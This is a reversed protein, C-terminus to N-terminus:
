RKRPRNTKELDLGALLESISYVLGQHQQFSLEPWHEERLRAFDTLVQQTDKGAAIRRQVNQIALEERAKEAEDERLYRERYEDQAQIAGGSHRALLKRLEEDRLHGSLERIIDEARQDILWQATEKDILEALIKTTWRPVKGASFLSVLARQCVQGSKGSQRLQRCFRQMLEGRTATICALELAVLLDACAEIVDDDMNNPLLGLVHKFYGDASISNLTAPQAVIYRLVSVLAERSKLGRFHYFTSTLLEDAGLVLPLIQNLNAATALSGICDLVHLYYPDDPNLAAVLEDLVAEDGTNTLALIACYRLLDNRSKDLTLPLAVPVVAKDGILSLLLLANGTRHAIRCTLEAELMEITNKTLFRALYRSSILPHSIVYQGTEGLDKLIREALADREKQSFAAPSSQLLWHPYNKSFYARVPQNLEALYSVTNMWSDNPEDSPLFSLERIRDFGQGQLEEAALYEGYSRMQFAIGNPTRVLVSNLLEDLLARAEGENTEMSAILVRTAEDLTLEIRSWTEMAVGLMRVARRQKSWHVGPRSAILRDIMFAVNENKKDSFKPDQSYREVMVKLVFPNSVEQVCDALAIANWFADVDIGHRGAYTRADDDSFGLLHLLIANVPLVSPNEAFFAQRSTALFGSQPDDELLQEFDVPFLKLYKRPIEDLGDFLYVRRINSATLVKEDICTRLLGRLDGKYSRLSVPVPVSDSSQLEAFRKCAQRVITSKGLGPEGLILIRSHGLIQQLDPEQERFIGRYQLEDVSLRGFDEASEFRREIFLDDEQTLVADLAVKLYDRLERESVQQAL